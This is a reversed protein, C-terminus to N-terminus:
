EGIVKNISEFTEKKMRDMLWIKFRSIWSEATAGEFLSKLTNFENIDLELTFSFTSKNILDKILYKEPTLDFDRARFILEEYTNQDLLINIPVEAGYLEPYIRRRHAYSRCAECCYKADIRSAKFEKNCNKCIMTRQKRPKIEKKKRTM